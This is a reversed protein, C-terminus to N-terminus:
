GGGEECGLEEGYLGANHNMKANNVHQKKVNKKENNYKANRM